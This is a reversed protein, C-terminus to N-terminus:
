FMYKIIYVFKFNLKEFKEVFTIVDGAAHCSWCKYNQWERNLTLSPRHDDHFPCICKFLKGVTHVRVYGSVVDIIDNAAKIQKTLEAPTTAVPVGLAIVDRVM